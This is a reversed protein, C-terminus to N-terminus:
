RTMDRSFYFLYLLVSYLIITYDVFAHEGPELGDPLFTWTMMRAEVSDLLSRESTMNM